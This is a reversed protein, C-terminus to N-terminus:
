TQRLAVDGNRAVTDYIPSSWVGTCLKVTSLPIYGKAYRLMEIGRSINSAIINISKEWSLTKDIQIGLYTAENIMPVLEDDIFFKPNIGGSNCINQLKAKSGILMAQTKTVNQSLKNGELWLKLNVLDDNIVSNIPDVSKSSYFISTDDACMTIKANDLMLPLDNIQTLFPLPGM